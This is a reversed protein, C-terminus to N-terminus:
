RPSIRTATPSPPTTPPRRRACAGNIPYLHMTASVGAVKPGHPCAGRDGRRDARHRLQGELVAFGKRSCGDFAANLAPYPMPGVMEAKVEAVDRFPKCRREGESPDARDLLHRDRCFM